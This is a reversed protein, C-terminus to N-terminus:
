AFLTQIRVIDNTCRTILSSTSFSGMDEPSFDLTKDFVAGRVRMALGAGVKASFYTTVVTCLLGLLAFALMLAGSGTVDGISSGETQLLTTVKSMQDPISLDTWISCLAFVGCVGLYM